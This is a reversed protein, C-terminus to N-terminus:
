LTRKIHDLKYAQLLDGEKIDDFNELRIGCEMGERVEKVDDKNRRLSQINYDNITRQDRIIRMRHSRDITGNLVRCGAIKGFRSITFTQLVIARGTMVEVVEPKLMGELAMKIDDTVEYIIGYQRIEVGEREALAQARDEPVVHFAVIVAGSAAALYVDSETVGGIAAHLLNVRVEPHTFKTLESKLAEVSGPTDAKLIVALESVKGSEVQSLIDELTRPKESKSALQQERGRQRRSEAVGRAEEQDGMVYFKDGAWPVLDLGSVKVPTSPPAEEVEQNKDNYMARIRGVAPGCLVMDGKRLTGDQVILWALPGLGEDRFAELCVGRAPRSPDATLENLEALTLITSLLDEIGQGSQGSTRVVETDGGWEAALLNQGALDQLVRQENKEPLDIKNMAVLIPVEAARAHNLAEITQPMVGDNAAVVLVAIDTVNAGRARMEAFAAHGPTDLFTIKQGDHEVQYAAIHQTIGGLEGGAVNASRIKDLLTTKGHDVHGLITVIPPRHQQAGEGEATELEQEIDRERKFQLDVGLEMALDAATDEDLVSNINVDKMGRRMLTGLLQAAPRGMALSLNRISIPPEVVASTKLAVAHHGRSKPMRPRRGTRGGEDDDLMRGGTKTRREQRLKRDTQLSGAAAAGARRKNRAEESEDTGDTKKGKGTGRDKVLQKLQDSLPKETSIQGAPFRIEPKQAQETPAQAAPKVPMSPLEALKPSPREKSKKQSPLGLPPPSARSVMARATGSRPMYDERRLPAPPEPKASPAAPRAAQGGMPPASPPPEPPAEPTASAPTASAAAPPESAEPTAAEPATVTPEAAPPTVVEAPATVTTEVTEPEADADGEPEPAPVKELVEQPVTEELPPEAQEDQRGRGGAPGRLSPVKSGAHRGAIDKVPTRSVELKEPAPASATGQKLLALVRDKEEPSISALASNKLVIGLKQCAEILLKSDMNLEKALTFIRIKM